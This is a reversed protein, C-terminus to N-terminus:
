REFLIQMLLRRLRLLKELLITYCKHAITFIVGTMEATVFTVIKASLKGIKVFLVICSPM